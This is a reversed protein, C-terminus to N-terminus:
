TNMCLGTEVFKKSRYESMGEEVHTITMNRNNGTFNRLKVFLKEGNDQNMMILDLTLNTYAVYKNCLEVTGRASSQAACTMM